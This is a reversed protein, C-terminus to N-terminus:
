AQPNGLFVWGLKEAASQDFTATRQAGFLRHTQSILADQFDAGAYAQELAYEVSEGDEFELAPNKLLENILDLCQKRSIKYSRHMTFFFEFLTVQTIFGPSHLELSQLFARATQKYKHHEPAYARLLVSTDLGFLQQM